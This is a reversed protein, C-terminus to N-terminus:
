GHKEAPAASPAFGFHRQFARCFTEQHNYGVALAILFIELDGAALLECAAELRLREIYERIGEGLASRFRTSINNNRLGCRRRVATVDLAPDFLHRHIDAVAHGVEAPASAPPPPIGAKFRLLAAAIRDKQDRFALGRAAGTQQRLSTM